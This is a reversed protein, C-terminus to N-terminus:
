PTLESVIETDRLFRAAENWVGSRIRCHEKHKANPQLYMINLQDTAYTEFVDAIQDLNKAYILKTMDENGEGASEM